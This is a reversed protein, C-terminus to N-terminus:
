SYFVNIKIVLWFLKKTKCISKIKLIILVAKKVLMNFIFFAFSKFFLCLMLVQLIADWYIGFKTHWLILSFIYLREKNLLSKLTYLKLTNFDKHCKIYNLFRQSYNLKKEKRIKTCMYWFIFFVFHKLEKQSNWLIYIYIYVILIIIIIIIIIIIM